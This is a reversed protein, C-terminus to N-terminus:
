VRYEIDWRYGGISFAKNGAEEQDSMGKVDILVDRRKGDFTIAVEDMIDFVDM